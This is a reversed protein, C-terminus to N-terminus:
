TQTKKNEETTIVKAQILKLVEELGHELTETNDLIKKVTERGSKTAIAYTAISGALMGLAYGSWFPHSDNKPKTM